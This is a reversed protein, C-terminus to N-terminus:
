EILRQEGIKRDLFESADGVSKAKNWYELAKAANGKRFLIDGYHELITGSKGGDKELAKLIWTEADEYRQLKYLVWAYTDLYSPNDPSLENAQRAMKEAKELNEGRLSLYYSYNNLVYANEANIKLSNEYSEDSQKFDKVQHYNDGLFSYLTALLENNDVVLNLCQRFHKIAAEYSKKQTEAMGLFMYPLPQEPFLGIAKKADIALMEYDELEAEIRILQDWVVYKSSDISIVKRFAEASEKLKKERYLFDGEISYVKANNPHVKKM